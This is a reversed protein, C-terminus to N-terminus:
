KVRSYTRGDLLRRVREQSVAYRDAIQSPSQGFDEFLRIERVSDIDFNRPNNCIVSTAHADDRWLAAQLPNPKGKRECFKAVARVLAHRNELMKPTPKFGYKGLYRIGAFGGPIMNLGRPYLSLIDVLEEELNMAVEYSLGAAYVRHVKYQSGDDRRIAEHFRYPSGSKAANLHQAWRGAWSHRTIGIYTQFPLDADGGFYTHGYVTYGGPQQLALLIKLPVQSIEPSKRLATHKMLVFHAEGLHRNFSEPFSINAHIENGAADDDLEYTRKGDDFAHGGVAPKPKTELCISPLNEWGEAARGAFRQWYEAMAIEFIRENASIGFARSHGTLHEFVAHNTPRLLDGTQEM